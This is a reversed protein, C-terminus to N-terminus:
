NSQSVLQYTMENPGEDTVDARLKSRRNYESPITVVEISQPNELLRQLAQEDDAAYGGDDTSEIEVRHSGVLPGFEEDVEFRGEAIPVSTKPGRTEEIPVFRIIGEELPAGDLTVTGRVGARPLAETQPGACGPLLALLAPLVAVQM